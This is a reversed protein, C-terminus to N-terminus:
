VQSGYLHQDIDASLDKIGLHKPNQMMKWLSDEELPPLEQFHQAFEEEDELAHDIMVGVAEQITVKKGQRLLMRALFRDLKQKKSEDIKITLTM